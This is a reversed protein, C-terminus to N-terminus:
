GRDVVGGGDRRRGEWQGLGDVHYGGDVPTLVLVLGNIWDGTRRGPRRAPKWNVSSWVM